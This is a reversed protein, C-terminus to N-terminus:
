VRIKRAVGLGHALATLIHTALAFVGLHAKLRNLVLDGEQCLKAGAYSASRMASEVMNSPVLGLRQSMALHTEKGEKWGRKGARVAPNQNVM